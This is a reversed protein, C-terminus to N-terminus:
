CGTTKRANCTAGDIMSVSGAEANSVYVTDTGPDIAIRRPSTGVFATAITECGRHATNCTHTDIMTVSNEGANAVYLTGTAPDLVAARPDKGVDLSAGRSRPCGSTDTANCRAAAVLTVGDRGADGVYLTGTAPDIALGLSGHGVRARAPTAGCGSTDAANCRRADILALTGAGSDAVDVTHHAQDLALIQPGRGVQVTAPAQACGSTALATCARVDVVSVSDDFVNPVYLTHTAGDLALLEPGRGVHVLAPTNGCGSTDTANCTRADIVAVTDSLTNAAYITSTAPDIAVGVPSEGHTAVTARRGCGAQERANCTRADILSLTSSGGNAVYLTSTLPDVALGTPHDGVGVAARALLPGGCSATVYPGRCATRAKWRREFASVFRDIARSQARGSRRRAASRVLARALLQVRLRLRVDAITMGSQRLFRRLGGPPFVQHATRRLERAVAAASVHVHRARAEAVIADSQLLNEMTQHLAAAASEGSGSGHTIAFWHSFRAGTLPAVGTCALLADAAPHYVAGSPPLPASPAHPCRAGSAQATATLLCCLLLTAAALARVSWSM